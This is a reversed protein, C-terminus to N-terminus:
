PPANSGAAGVISAVVLLGGALQLGRLHEGLFLYGIVNAMLPVAFSTTAIRTVSVRIRILHVYAFWGIASTAASLLLWGTPELVGTAAQPRWQEVLPDFAVLAVGAFLFAPGLTATLIGVDTEGTMRTWRPYHRQRIWAGAAAQITSGGTWCIAAGFAFAVGTAEVHWRGEPLLLLAAGAVGAAVSLLRRFAVREKLVLWGAVAFMVPQLYVLLSAFGSTLYRVAYAMGLQLGIVNLLAVLVTVVIVGPQRIRQKILLSFALLILGTVISRLGTFLIPPYLRLAEQTTPWGLAFFVVFVIATLTIWRRESGPTM